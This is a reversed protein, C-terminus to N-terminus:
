TRFAGVLARLEEAVSAVQASVERLGTAGSEANRAAEALGGLSRTMGSSEQAAIGVSRTIEQTTTTQEEVASAISAQLEDIRGIITAVEALADVAAETDTQIALIKASIDETAVSTQKALDKVENAVVAFGKGAEGARAAEITANLALLNTQEAIGTIVKIINGIEDSSEGLKAVKQNTASAVRVANGAVTTASSASSAIERISAEMEETGAAITEMSGTARQGAESAERARASSGTASQQVHDASQALQTSSSALAETTTAVSCVVEHIRALFRNFGDAVAAVEDSGRVPLRQTLDAEGEALRAFMAATDQIPRVMQRGVWWGLGAIILVVVALILIIDRQVARISASFEPRPVRVLVSWGMGPYGLAGVLPSFGAAQEIGKRAHQSFGHGAEGAVARSAAAVGAEALNLRLIVKELDHSIAVGTAAPDCDVIIRGDNDLVTLEASPWGAAQLPQHASAVIEEV